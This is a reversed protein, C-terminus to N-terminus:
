EIHNKIKIRAKLLEEEYNSNFIEPINKELAVEIDWLISQEVQDQFYESPTNENFRSLWDFLVLAEENSFQLTIKNNNLAEM